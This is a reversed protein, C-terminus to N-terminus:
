QCYDYNGPTLSNIWDRIANQETVPLLGGVPPM